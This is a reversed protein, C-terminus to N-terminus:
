RAYRAFWAQEEHHRVRMHVVMRYDEREEASDFHQLFDQILPLIDRVMARVQRVTMHPDFNARLSLDNAVWSPYIEDYGIEVVDNSVRIQGPQFNHNGHWKQRYQEASRVGRVRLMIM